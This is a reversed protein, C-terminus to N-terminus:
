SWTQDKCVSGIRGALAISEELSLKQGKDFAERYEQEALSTRILAVYSDRFKREAPEINFNMAERLRRAAGALTAAAAMDGCRVALAAFGDLSYSIAIRDGAMKVVSEHTMSLAEVFHACASDYDGCGYEAGALNNLINASAYKRRTRPCVRLAQDFLDRATQHDGESRALDGLMSLSRASGFEDKARRAAKLAEDLYERAASHNEQEAALGGLGRCLLSIDSFDGECRAEALGKRYMEGATQHDGQFKALNGAMSYLKARERPVMRDSQQLIQKLVGLGEALQGMFDWYYRLALNFRVAMAFDHDVSWHLASRLNDYEDELRKLWSVERGGHLSPEAAEALELFFEAHIKRIAHAEGSEELRDLAYERVVGLMRFRVESGSRQETFLLSQNLLSTLMDLVQPEQNGSSHRESIWEASNLSFAGAFIGLRSFLRKEAEGLLDYSWDLAGRMTQLRAPVDKAGGTLLKLRKNLRKLIDQPSLVKMRAAALEIALPLGDLHACIDAITEAHEPTLVFGPRAGCARAVFLKVADCHKLEDPSKSRPGQLTALPPVVYEREAKIHLLSRSTVMIKLRPAAILLEAMLAGAPVIREFNDLVLLIAKERLHAKLVQLLPRADGERIGLPQAISTLALEPRSVEALDVFAVGDPFDDFVERAAALALTTKGAGGVGTLTLLRVDPSRLAQCIEEVERTRGVMASHQPLAGLGHDEFAAPEPTKAYTATKSAPAIPQVAGIFRYGRRPLTEIFRPTTASDGLTERIRAIANHLSHDFDVFTDAPWIESRLEERTVLEGSRKLLVALVQLPQGQLRLRRGGKRLEGARVDLEYPDFRLLQPSSPSPM